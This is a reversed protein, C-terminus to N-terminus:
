KIMRTPDEYKKEFDYGEIGDTKLRFVEGYMNPISMIGDSM